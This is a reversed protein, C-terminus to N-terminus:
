RRPRSRSNAKVRGATGALPPFPRPFRSSYFESPIRQVRKRPVATQWQLDAHGVSESRGLLRWTPGDPKALNLTACHLAGACQILPESDIRRVKWGPLARKFVAVARRDHDDAVNEYRPVLVVGNAYIVNTFSYWVDNVPPPMPIRLVRLRGQPTAVMSLRVANRDLVAANVPEVSPDYQGVIVTRSDTFTAFMDVHSTPEGLLPELLLVQRASLEAALGREAEEETNWRAANDLLVSQTAVVLGRGNTLLNGGDLAIASEDVPVGLRSGIIGPIQDDLPRDDSYHFDLLRPRGGSVLVQPGYDRVWLTDFGTEVIHVRSSSRLVARLTARADSVYGPPVMVLVDVTRRLEQVIAVQTAQVDEDDFAWAILIASQPEFEAVLRDASRWDPLTGVPTTASTQSPAILPLATVLLTVVHLM